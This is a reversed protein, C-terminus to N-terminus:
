RAALCARHEVRRVAEGELPRVDGGPLPGQEPAHLLGEVRQGRDADGAGVPFALEHDAEAVPEAPTHRHDDDGIDQEVVM